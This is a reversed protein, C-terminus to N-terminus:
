TLIKWIRKRSTSVAWRSRSIILSVRRNRSVTRIENALDQQHKDITSAPTTSTSTGEPLLKEIKYKNKLLQSYNRLLEDEVKTLEYDKEKKQFSVDNLLSNLYKQRSKKQEEKAIKNKLSAVVKDEANFQERLKAIREYHTQVRDQEELLQKRIANEM